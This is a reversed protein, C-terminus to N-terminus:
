ANTVGFSIQSEANNFSMKNYIVKNDYINYTHTNTILREMNKIPKVQKNM